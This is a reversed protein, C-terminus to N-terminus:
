SRGKNRKRRNAMKASETAKQQGQSPNGKPNVLGGLHIEPRRPKVNGVKM